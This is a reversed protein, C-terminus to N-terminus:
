QPIALDVGFPLNPDNLAEKLWKIEQTLVKPSLTLGGITGIGGANSVAAALDSHSVGNMGALMIPHKIDLLKTLPTEILAAMSPARFRHLAFSCGFTGSHLKPM